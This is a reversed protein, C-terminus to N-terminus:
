IHGRIDRINGLGIVKPAAEIRGWMFRAVSLFGFLFYLFINQLMDAVGLTVDNDAGDENPLSMMGIGASYHWCWIWVILYVGRYANCYKWSLLEHLFIESYFHGPPYTTGLKTSFGVGSAYEHKRFTFQCASNSENTLGLSACDCVLPIFNGSGPPQRCLVEDIGPRLRSCHWFRDSVWNWLL